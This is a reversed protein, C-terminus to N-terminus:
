TRLDGVIRRNGNEIKAFKKKKGRGNPARGGYEPKKMYAMLGAFSVNRIAAGDVTLESNDKGAIGVGGGDIDVSKVDVRSGEGVSIAKDRVGVFKPGIIRIESGSFDLADGGGATGIDTFLGGEIVGTTFDADFGDSVTNTM